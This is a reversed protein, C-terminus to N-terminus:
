LRWQNDTRKGRSWTTRWPLWLSSAQLNCEMILAWKSYNSCPLMPFTINTSGGGAIERVIERVMVEGHYHRRSM